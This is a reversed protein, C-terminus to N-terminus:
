PQGGILGLDEVVKLAFQDQTCRPDELPKACEVDLSYSVDFSRWSVTVVAHTRTLTYNKAAARAAEPVEMDPYVYANRTGRLHLDVGDGTETALAYWNVHHTLLANALLGADDFALVPVTIEALKERQELPLLQPDVAKFGTTEAWNVDQAVPQNVATAAAHARKVAREQENAAARDVPDPVAGGATELPVRRTAEAGNEACAAACAVLLILITTKM